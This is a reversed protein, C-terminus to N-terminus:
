KTLNKTAFVSAIPNNRKLHLEINEVKFVVGDQSQLFCGKLVPWGDMRFKEGERNQDGKLFRTENETTNM